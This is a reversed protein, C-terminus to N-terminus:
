WISLSGWFITASMFVPAFIGNGPVRSVIFAGLIGYCGSRLSLEM